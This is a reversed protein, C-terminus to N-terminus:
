SQAAGNICPCNLAIDAALDRIGSTLEEISVSAGRDGRDARRSLGDARLGPPTPRQVRLAQGSHLGAAALSPERDKRGKRMRLLGHAGCHRITYPRADEGKAFTATAPIIYILLSASGHSTRRECGQRRHCSVNVVARGCNRPREVLRMGSVWGTKPVHHEFPGSM